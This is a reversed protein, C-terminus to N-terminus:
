KIINLMNKFIHSIIDVTWCDGLVNYRQTMSICVDKNKENVGIETYNDPLTQLREYELPTLKRCMFGVGKMEQYIKKQLNGGRCSTLTPCKFNVNNVRKLIDHGNIGLIAIVKENEGQFVFKKHKYWFKQNVNMDSLIIDKLMINKDEPLKIDKINTWYLRKRNQASVLNSDIMIPKVGFINSIIDKWEQKMMVNEFLFWKPKLEKFMRVFDYFLSSKKGDLGKGNNQCISLDQCPSGGILLDIKPLMVSNIHKVNGLQITEPFHKQTIQIAYRNIEAAYYKNIKIGIKELALQGCSIGDFMSLVNMDLEGYMNKIKNNLKLCKIHINVNIVKIM